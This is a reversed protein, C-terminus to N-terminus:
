ISVDERMAVETVLCDLDKCCDWLMEGYLAVPFSIEAEFMGDEVLATVTTNANADYMLKVMDYAYSANKLWYSGISRWLKRKKHTCEEIFEDTGKGMVFPAEQHKFTQWDLCILGKTVVGFNENEARLMAVKRTFNCTEEFGELDNPTYAFPFAGCDEWVIMIRKDTEKIYELKDKVSTAHLGFMLEIDPRHKFLVDATSNVLKVVREAIIEGSLESNKTETFSQFYIGDIDLNSYDNIYTDVINKRFADLVDDSLSMEGKKFENVPRAENWGWSFGLYIKIGYEHAVKIVDSINIPVFDNWIILTNMKLKAMNEIYKHYDYIVHGWSWLGRHKISPSSIREYKEMKEGSFLERFFRENGYPKKAFPLYYAVFDMAGYLLGNEDFGSIVIMQADPNYISKTVKLSYGEDQESDIYFGNKSMEALFSNSDKTGIFIPHCLALEEKTIKDAAVATLTYDVHTSVAGSVTEIAKKELGSFKGYVIRFKLTEMKINGKRVKGKTSQKKLFDCLFSITEYEM